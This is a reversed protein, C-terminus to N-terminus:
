STARSLGLRLLALHLQPLLDDPSAPWSSAPVDSSIVSTASGSCTCVSLLVPALEAVRGPVVYANSIGCAHMLGPDNHKNAQQAANIPDPEEGPLKSIANRLDSTVSSM